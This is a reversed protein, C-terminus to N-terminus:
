KKKEKGRYNEVLVATLKKLGNREEKTLDAKENQSYAMPKNNDLLSVNVL